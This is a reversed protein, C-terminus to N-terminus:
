SARPRSASAPSFMPSARGFSLRQWKAYARVVGDRVERSTANDGLAKVAADVVYGEPAMLSRTTVLSTSGAADLAGAFYSESYCALVFSPLAAESRARAPLELGDMLRNHGAYGVVHVAEDRDRDGDHFRVRAGGTAAGFFRGVARDIEDGHIAELVVLQEVADAPARWAEAPVRRRYVARELAGAGQAVDVREWGSTKRDFFRRAGFVAGWYLNTRLDGARGAVASGCDIQDNSCLPVVVLTVFPRGRRVDAAIRPFADSWAARPEPVEAAAPAAATVATLLAAAAAFLRM